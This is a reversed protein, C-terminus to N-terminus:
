TTATPGSSASSPSPPRSPRSRPESSWPDSSYRRARLERAPQRFAEPLRQPYSEREGPVGFAEDPATDLVVLTGFLRDWVTLVTAFNRQTTAPVHHRRHLRPTVFVPELWRLDLRLNSHGLLAFVAYTASVFAIHAAPVGMAFLVLQAPVNRVLHEFLHTRTTALWDLRLSSHHVKHVAWLVDSRHMVVHVVFGTFDFVVVATAFRAAAPMATFADAVVALRLHELVPGLVIASLAGSGTSLVYWGVDTALFPRLFPSDAFRLRPVRELTAVTLFAGALLLAVM